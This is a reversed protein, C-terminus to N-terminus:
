RTNVTISEDPFIRIGPIEITGKSAKVASTIAGHNPSKYLDPVQSFDIIEWKWITRSGLTGLDTRTREPVAEVVPVEVEKATEGVAEARRRLEENERRIAEIERQKADVAKKYESIKRRTIQDAENIPDLLLAFDNRIASLADSIPDTYERKKAEIARKVKAILALDDTAPVLDEPTQIQRDRAYQVIRTAEDRLAVVSRDNLPGIHVLETKMEAEGMIAKDVIAVLNPPARYYDGHPDEPLDGFMAEPTNQRDDIQPAEEITISGSPITKVSDKFPQIESEPVDVASVIATTNGNRVPARIVEGVALRDISYYTYERPGVENGDKFFRVKVINTGLGAAPLGREMQARRADAVCEPCGKSLDFEGHPCNGKPM